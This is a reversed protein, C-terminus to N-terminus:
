LELVLYIYKSDEYVEYLKVINNHDLKKMIDIERRMVQEDVEDNEKDIVKCAFKKQNELHTVERVFSFGGRNFLKMLYIVRLM